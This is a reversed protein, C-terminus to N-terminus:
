SAPTRDALAAPVLGVNTGVGDQRDLGLVDGPGTSIIDVPLGLRRNGIGLGDFAAALAIRTSAKGIAVDANRLRRHPKGPEVVSATCRLGEDIRLDGLFEDPKGLLAEFGLARHLGLGQAAYPGVLIRKKTSVRASVRMAWALSARPSTRDRRTTARPLSAEKQPPLDSSM